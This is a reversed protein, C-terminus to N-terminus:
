LSAESPHATELVLSVVQNRGQRKAMYLAEDARALLVEPGLSPVPITAVVGASVTVHPFAAAQGAALHLDAVEQRGREAVAIAGELDTLPLLLAFEEGGYRAMLDGSRNIDTALIGAVRRLCDDGSLHGYTDNYSKFWDVDFMVLGLWSGARAARRWELALTADFARRNAVNTLGDRMSLRRLQANAAALEETVRMLEQERAQRRNMEERLRLATRARAVLEIGNIPKTIYDTAGTELALRLDEPTSKGTVMIVPLDATAEHARIRRLAAIGDADPLTVDLLVLDVSSPSVGGGEIGLLALMQRVSSAVQIEDYGAGRLFLDLLRQINRDDDVILIHM